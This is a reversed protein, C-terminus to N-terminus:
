IGICNLSFNTEGYKIKKGKLPKNLVYFSKKKKKEMEVEKEKLGHLIKLKQVLGLNRGFTVGFLDSVFFFLGLLNECRYLHHTSM